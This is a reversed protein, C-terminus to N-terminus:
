LSGGIVQAVMAIAATEARLIRPGLTITLAGRAQLAVIEENSFGGEPGIWINITKAVSVSSLGRTTEAEHAVLTQCCPSINKVADEFKVAERVHPIIGRMSQGAASEAIAQFRNAKKIADKLKSVTRCTSVPIIESVGLEVCKQIIMEIKDGKLLAQHLRVFVPSETSVPVSSELLFKVQLKKISEIVAHYDTCMGDCLIVCDGVKVRLVHLLHHAAQGEIVVRGDRIQQPDIFYKPM